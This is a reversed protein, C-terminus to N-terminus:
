HTVVAGGSPHNDVYHRMKIRVALNNLYTGVLYFLDAVDGILNSLANVQHNGEQRSAM